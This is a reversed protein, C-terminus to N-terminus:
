DIGTIRKDQNYRPLALGTGVGVELVDTGPLRNVLSVAHWRARASIRRLATDYIGGGRRYAEVISAHDLAAVPVLRGAHATPNPKQLTQNMRRWAGKQWGGVGLPSRARDFGRPSLSAM